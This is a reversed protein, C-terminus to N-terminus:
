LVGYKEKIQRVRKLLLGLQYTEYRPDKKRIDVDVAFHSLDHWSSDLLEDPKADQPWEDLAASAELEGRAVRELLAAAVSAKERDM